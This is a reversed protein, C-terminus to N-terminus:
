KVMVQCVIEHSDVDKVYCVSTVRGVVDDCDYKEQDWRLSMEDGVRPIHDLLWESERYPSGHKIVIRMKRKM